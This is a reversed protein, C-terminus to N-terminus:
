FCVRYLGQYGEHLIIKQFCDIIGNYQPLKSNLISSHLSSALVQAQLRKKITDLPYVAFKSFGGAVAGCLFKQSIEQIQNIEKSYKTALNSIVPISFSSSPSPSTPIPIQLKNKILLIKMLEYIAFNLGMYPTIGVVAPTLGAYFGSIGNTKITNVVFSNISPYMPNAGQLAFQTRMIDFPYTSVTSILGAGAGALFLVVTKMFRNNNSNTNNLSANKTSKLTSSQTSYHSELYSEGIRKLLRHNYLLSHYRSLHFIILYYHKGMLLLNFLHMPLGCILQM